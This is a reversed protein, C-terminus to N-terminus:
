GINPKLQIDIKGDMYVKDGEHLEIEKGDKTIVTGNTKVITGDAMTMNKDMKKTFKDQVVIMQGAQMSVYNKKTTDPLTTEKPPAVISQAQLKANFGAIIMLAAVLNLKIAKM